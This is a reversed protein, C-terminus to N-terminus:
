QEKKIRETYKLYIYLFFSISIVGRGECGAISSGKEAPLQDQIVAGVAGPGGGWLQGRKQGDRM